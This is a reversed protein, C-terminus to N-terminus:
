AERHTKGTSAFPHTCHSVGAHRDIERAMGLHLTNDARKPVGACPVDNLEEQPHSAITRITVQGPQGGVIDLKRNVPYPRGTRKDGLKDSDAEKVLGIGSVLDMVPFFM